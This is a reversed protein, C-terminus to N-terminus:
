LSSLTPIWASVRVCVADALMPSHSQAPHPSGRHLVEAGCLLIVTVDTQVDTVGWSASSVSQQLSPKTCGWLVARHKAAGSQLALLM